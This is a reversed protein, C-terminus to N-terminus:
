NVIIECMTNLVQRRITLSAGNHGQAHQTIHYKVVISALHQWTCTASTQLVFNPFNGATDCSSYPYVLCHVTCTVALAWLVSAQM